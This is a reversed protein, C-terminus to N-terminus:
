RKGVCVEVVRHRVVPGSTGTQVLRAGEGIRGRSICGTALTSDYGAVVVATQGGTTNATAADAFSRSQNLSPGAAWSNAVPDYLYTNAFSLPSDPADAASIRSGWEGEDRTLGFFPNGGGIMYLKGGIVTGAPYNSALPSNAGSTWSNGAIDYVYLNNIQNSGTSGNACYIKNNIASCAMNFEAQPLAALPASWTNTAVDYAYVASSAVGGVIGGIVYVKGNWYAHGHDYVAVPVPAGASYTNTAIDYIRNLTGGTLGGTIYIKNTSPAYEAHFLYDPGTALSALATWTNTAPNYKYAEAHQAGGITNGGFAYISTGDSAVAAGYVSIPYVAAQTWPGPTGGPICTPTPTPTGATPTATATATATATPTSTPTRTATPTATATPTPSPCPPLLWRAANAIVHAFQGSWYTGGYPYDGIYANIGIARGKYAVASIDDTWAAVQTAGSALPVNDRFHAFLTTVGQMLPHGANFTGLNADTFATTSTPTYPTYNGSLWRGQIQWGIQYSFTVGVVIGNADIYDALNNGLTTSDVFPFNSMAVVLQYPLLQALTPTGNQGDFLDVQTVGSEALLQTRLTNPPNASDGHVILIHYNAPACTPTPTPTGATPTATPTSTPTRTATPTATPTVTPTACIQGNNRHLNENIFTCCTPGFLGGTSWIDAPGYFGAQNAQRMSPLAPPSVVWTGAPWTGVALEDVETSSDFFGGGTADGGIAYLKGTNPDYALGMDARGMTWTPGTSYTISSLDLRMSTTSNADPAAIQMGVNKVSSDPLANGKGSSGFPTSGYSGIMYLFQGVQQYGGLVYTAPAAAASSWTNTPIDYVWTQNTSNGGVTIVKNNFAGAAEGYGSGPFNAGPSWANTAIDYIQFATPGFGPAVYIKGNYYAAAPAEGPSSPASALTAWANAVADYRYLTSVVSGNSVGGVIYFLNGVQVFGYRALNVPVPAAAVWPGPTGGGSCTPTPTPTGATPTATATATATPTPTPTRTATPTPSACPALNWVYRQGSAVPPNTFGSTDCGVQTFATSDKQVGVSLIRGSFSFPVITQFNFDFPTAGSEYLNVEYDLTHTTSAQGFYITRYEITFIRNPATGTTVTFIGCNTCNTVPTNDTRQDGYYPMMQLTVGAVPLCSGSFGNGGAGFGLIGNSGVYASTFSNGYFSVPFPLSITTTCDDCHNTTDTTAPIFAGTTLTYNYNQQFPCTPTATPTPTGTATATATPTPTPTRTATPTATVTATPTPTPGCPGVSEVVTSAAGATGGGAVFGRTNYISNASGGAHPSNLSPGARWSNSGPNYIKVANDVQGLCGFLWLEGNLAFAGGAQCDAPVPATITRWMDTAPNYAYAATNPSSGGVVFIENGLLAGPVNGSASPMSTKTAYTNAVPDYEWVQSQPVFGPAFGGIIYVKSNFAAVAPGSRFDPMNMGSSWVNTVANYIQMFNLPGGFSINNFGGPVYINNGVAAAKSQSHPTPIPAAAAWVSGNFYDTQTGYSSGNFGSIVYFNNNAVAGSAFSRANLM